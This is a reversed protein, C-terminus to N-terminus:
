NETYLVPEGSRQDVLVRGALRTDPAQRLGEKVEAVSAGVDDRRRYVEVGAEPFALLLDMDRVLAADPGPTPGDRLSRRSRTRVALLNPDVELEITEGQKGGYTVKPM